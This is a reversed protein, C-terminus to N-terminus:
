DRTYLDGIPGFSNLMMKRFNEPTLTFRQEVITSKDEADKYSKDKFLYAAMSFLMEAEDGFSDYLDTIQQIKGSQSLEKLKANYEEIGIM